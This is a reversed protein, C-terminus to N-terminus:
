KLPKIISVASYQPDFDQMFRTTLEQMDMSRVQELLDYMNDMGCFHTLLMVGAVAEAKCYMSIYRGYTAKICREAADTPLGEERLRCIEACLQRYVEQPDRSEGEYLSVVYDRGAMVEYEFEGNILGSDYLKRYLPSSEGCIIELLIEDTIQNKLNQLSDGPLGKFGIQFIPTSVPLAQEALHSVVERPEDAKKWSITIDDGKKLVKDALELVDQEAFNGAVVLVMNNLNYFTNYCRYLLDASIEAISEVTGAIDLKVPNQHYLIGLLNFMVRWGPNDDYMRIEQGIIGQEKEVTQQTFYPTTVQNLLIEMSERFNDTCAFLYSTRDFSTYANASAGVKAYKAFTDGEESEFMKHELFHAIGAPVTVFDQERQTKFTTDISGVKAAFMAYATSFGQLPCMLITLGSPHEVRSYSQHLLESSITEIKNKM